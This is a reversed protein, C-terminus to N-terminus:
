VHLSGKAQLCEGRPLSKQKLFIEFHFPATPWMIVGYLLLAIMGGGIINTQALAPPPVGFAISAVAILFPLFKRTTPLRVNTGPPSDALLRRKLLSGAHSLRINQVALYTLQLFPLPHSPSPDCVARDCLKFAAFNSVVDFFTIFRKAAIQPHHRLMEVALSASHFIDAVAECLNFKTNQGLRESIAIWTSNSVRGDGPSYGTVPQRHQKGRTVLRSSAAECVSSRLLWSRRRHPMGAARM